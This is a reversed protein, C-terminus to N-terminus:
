GIRRKSLRSTLAKHWADLYRWPWIEGQLVITEGRPCIRSIGLHTHCKTIRANGSSGMVGIWQGPAVVEGRKVKVRGLHAFYYRVNDDGHITVTMGGRTGVLNLEETWLDNAEVDTVVGSTPALVHAYCGNVDAAPYILHDRSYTVPVNSFPFVYTFRSDSDRTSLVIDTASALSAFGLSLLVVAVILRRAM